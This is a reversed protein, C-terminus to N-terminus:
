EGRFNEIARDDWRANNSFKTNDRNDRYPRSYGHNDAHLRSDSFRSNGRSGRHSRSRSIDRNDSDQLNVMPQTVRTAARKSPSLDLEYDSAEIHSEVPHLFHVVFKFVCYM